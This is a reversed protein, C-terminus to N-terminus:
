PKALNYILSSCRDKRILANFNSRIGAWVAKPYRMLGTGKYRESLLSVYFADLWMPKQGKLTFGHLGALRSVAKPSFHHLHRPVDYGAWCPGYHGADLATFNPLAMLLVGGPKLADKISQLTGNLGHVHELVHWATIVDFSAGADLGSLSEEVDLGYDKRAFEAAKGAPEIGTVQWGSNKMVHAFEGTGCGFDLISGTGKGSARRVINRKQRLTFARAFRFAMGMFGGANSNHSIYADSEYYRALDSPEPVPWTFRYGTEPNEYLKFGEGTVAHDKVGSVFRVGDDDFLPCTQPEPVHGKDPKEPAAM